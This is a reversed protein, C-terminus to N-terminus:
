LESHSRKRAAEGLVKYMYSAGEKMLPLHTGANALLEVLTGRRYADKVLAVEKGLDLLADGVPTKEVMRLLSTAFASNLATYGRQEGGFMDHILGRTEGVINDRIVPNMEGLPSRM